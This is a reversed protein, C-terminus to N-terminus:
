SILFGPWSGQSRYLGTNTFVLRYGSALNGASERAEALSTIMKDLFDYTIQARSSVRTSHGEM